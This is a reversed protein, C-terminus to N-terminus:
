TVISTADADADLFTETAFSARGHRVLPVHRRLRIQVLRVTLVLQSPEDMPNFETIPDALKVVSLSSGKSARM